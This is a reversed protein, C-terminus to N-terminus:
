ERVELFHSAKWVIGCVIDCTLWDQKCATRVQDISNQPHKRRRWHVTWNDGV